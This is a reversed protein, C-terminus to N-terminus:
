RGPRRSERNSGRRAEFAVSIESSGIAPYVFTAALSGINTKEGVKDLDWALDEAAQVLLLAHDGLSAFAQTTDATRDQRIAALAESLRASSARLDALTTSGEGGAKYKKAPDTSPLKAVRDLEGSNKGPVRPM